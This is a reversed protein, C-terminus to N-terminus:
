LSGRTLEEFRHAPVFGAGRCYRCPNDKEEGQCRPCVAHPLGAKLSEQALQIQELAAFVQNNFKDILIFPYHTTLKGARDFWSKPKLDQEVATLEDIIAQLKPDAFADRCRKPIINGEHDMLDAPPSPKKRKKKRNANKAMRLRKCDECDDGSKGVRKCRECRLKGKLQKAAANVSMEGSKVAEIYEPTGNALVTSAQDISNTSVNLIKAAEERTLSDVQNGTSEKPRGAEHNVLCAAIIARQSTDLHRRIADKYVYQRPDKGTFERFTPTVEADIAAAHRHRGALIKGDCLVVPEDDDYGIERMHGVLADMSIGTGFEVLCSLPHHKLRKWNDPVPISKTLKSMVGGM